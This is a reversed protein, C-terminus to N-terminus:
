YFNLFEFFLLFLNGSKLVNIQDGIHFKGVTELRTRSEDCDASIQRQLTFLNYYHDAEIFNEDDIFEIATIWKPLYDRAIEELKNDLDNYYLLSISRMVDGVIFSNGRTAIKLAIIFDRRNAVEQLSLTKETSETIMIDGIENNNNNNNNNNITNENDKVGFNLQFLRVFTNIGALIKDNFQSIAFPAGHIRTESLLVLKSEQSQFVLLKGEKVEASESLSSAVGVIFYEDNINSNSEVLSKKINKILGGVKFNVIQSAIEGDSLKYTSLTEFTDADILRISYVEIEENIISSFEHNMVVVAYSHTSEQYCIRRPMANLPITTLHLKQIEDITGILISDTSYIALCNQFSSTHLPTVYNMDSLNLSSCILRKNYSYFLTPKDSSVFISKTNVNNNINQSKIINFQVPQSGISLKQNYSM